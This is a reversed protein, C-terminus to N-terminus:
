YKLVMDKSLNADIVTPSSAIYLPDDNPIDSIALTVVKAPYINEALRGRKNWFDIKQDCENRLNKGVNYYNKM